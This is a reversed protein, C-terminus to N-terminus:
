QGGCRQVQMKIGYKPRLTILPDTAIRQRPVLTFSVRQAITALILQGEMMAFQNGICIRPGGGFPMWAYRPLAKEMEASWREPMFREPQAFYEPKRQMLYPSVLVITGKAILHGGIRVDRMAQRGIAYAPPYLRMSEKLAKMTYPLNPLDPLSPTRGQLVGDVEAQMKAYADPHQSLLYWTWATANATTEHGALFLTMAEDRVQKDSMYSGDDEDQALLLMSLLDGKDEGSARRQEIMRYIISNLAAVAGRMKRNGPTNWALPIHIPRRVQSTTYRMVITIAKGVEDADGLVDADFLTKGVIGLTLRMMEKAVDVTAGDAWHRQAQESYEAMTDAYSAVRRHAFAPAVLKRQHRHLEDESTLLGNGLVPRGFTSLGPGKHFADHQEVLLEQALESTNLLVINRPGLRTSGIDSIQGGLQKLMTLRDGFMAQLTGVIPRQRVVPITMERM